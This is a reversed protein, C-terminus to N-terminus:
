QRAPTRKVRVVKEQGEVGAGMAEAEPENVRIGGEKALFTQKFHAIAEDLVGVIDDNWEGDAIM